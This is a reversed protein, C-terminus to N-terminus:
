GNLKEFAEDITAAKQAVFLYVAANLRALKLFEQSPNNLQELSEELTIREWSKTYNVGYYEPDIIFEEVSDGESIWLRGKSFLEPTGENGQILALRKYRNSFAEIYKKVFPKHFVGTIAYESSAVHTLKEITNLGTRLGLRMRLPTLDHMEKFFDARDFYYINKNLEINTATEKLTIGAKAPALDDGVVVLNLESKELAKAVLPFLFPNNAKGDFPYGLEISNPVATKKVFMDCAEVVGRFEETTEPKLRWGLLFAAIQEGYVSQKLVQEMMDKAEDQALDRNGKVGTGVAHIYKFFDM